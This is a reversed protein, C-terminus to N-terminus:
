PTEPQSLAEFMAKGKDLTEQYEDEPVSDAVIGGGVQFYARGDKVIITRIAINLDYNGNYGLYGLSGTYVSRATPELEDIIEMSRIKPAGTISGGPFSGRLLDVVDRGPHLDGTVTSVLHHVTAYSEIVAHEEVQVSGYSCVRGLDNRELDVIMSLEARDKASAMLERALRRDEDSDASRPRTGKIPRTEVRRGEGKLFREPSSSCVQGDVANFYGAFPASNLRRLRKYLSWPHERTETQFRQTLNAQYIDGAYIYDKVKKVARIYEDRTFNSRFDAKGNAGGVALPRPEQALRERAQELVPAPDAPHLAVLYTKGALNDHSVVRDYFAFCLEPMRLDDVARGPLRELYRGLEYALYGMGGGIFPPLHEINDEVVCETLAKRLAIFPNERTVSMGGGRRAWTCELGRTKLVLHPDFGIFSYRGFRPLALSSDLFCSYPADALADFISEMPPPDRLEEIECRLRLKEMATVATM